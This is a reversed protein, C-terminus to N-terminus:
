TESVDRGKKIGPHYGFSLHATYSNKKCLEPPLSLLRLDRVKSLEQRLRGATPKPKTDWWGSPMIESNGAVVMLTSAAVALLEPLRFRMEDEFVFMRHGGLLQKAVLPMQEVGWRGHMVSYAQEPSLALNLLIVMPVPYKPHKVVLVLWAQQQNLAKREESWGQQETLLVNRWLNAELQHGQHDVWTQIDDPKSAALVKGKYTRELPRILEGHKRPRGRVEQTGQKREPTM